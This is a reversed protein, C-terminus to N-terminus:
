RRRDPRLVRECDRVRDGRDVEAVDRGPGCYVRDRRRNRAEIRDQGRGGYLMNRGEGGSLRDDGDDGYLRDIGDGGFLVDDGDGGGLTDADSGGRLMDEGQEGSLRTIADGAKLSDADPGGLVDGSVGTVRDRGAGTQVRVPMNPVRSGRVRDAGDGTLVDLGEDEFPCRVRIPNEQVCVDGARLPAGTETFRIVVSGTDYSGAITLVSREGPDTRYQVQPATADNGGPDVVAVEAVGAVASLAGPAAAVLAALAALLGPAARM